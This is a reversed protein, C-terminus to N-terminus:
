RKLLIYKAKKKIQKYREKKNYYLVLYVCDHM